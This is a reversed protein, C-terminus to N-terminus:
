HISVELYKVKVKLRSLEASSAGGAAGDVHRKAPGLEVNKVRSAFNLSCVTEGISEPHPNVQVFMLTKSDGGTLDNRASGCVLKYWTLRTTSINVPTLLSHLFWLNVKSNRYPIHSDKRALGQIVDGLASLSRNINQAEVLREDEAGSKSVRESGALDVLTLKGRVVEKTVLNKSAVEVMLLRTATVLLLLLIAYAHSRSSHLNSNTSGVARNKSGVAIVRAVDDVSTVPVWVLGPVMM